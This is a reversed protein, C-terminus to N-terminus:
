CSSGTWLSARHGSTRRSTPTRARDPPWASSRGPTRTSRPSGTEPTPDLHELFTPDTNDDIVAAMVRLATPSLLIRQYYDARSEGERRTLADVASVVTPSVVGRLDDLTM